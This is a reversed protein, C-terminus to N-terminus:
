CVPITLAWPLIRRLGCNGRGGNGGFGFGGNQWLAFLVIIWAWDGGLGFGGYGYNCSNGQGAAYGEAFDSM